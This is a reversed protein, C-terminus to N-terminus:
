RSVTLGTKGRKEQRPKAVRQEHDLLWKKRRVGGGYGTLSGDAGIVRHCPVVIAHKNRGNAAGVARMAKPKKIRKAQEGYTATEGFPVALLANWAKEQFATGSFKIPVDFDTRNGAFYEELQRKCSKTIPNPRTETGEWDFLIKLVCDSDAEITIPGLPTELTEYFLEM